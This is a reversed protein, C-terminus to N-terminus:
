LLFDKNKARLIQHHIEFPLIHIKFTDLMDKFFWESNISKYKSYLLLNNYLKGVFIAVDPKCVCFKDNCGLWWDQNPIVINYNTLSEVMEKWAIRHKFKLDPRSIIVYDYAQKHQEFLETIRKKSYLALVMNRILYRTLDQEFGSWTGLHTFYDEVQIQNSLIESQVDTIFYRPNLWKYQENDYEQIDEASWRNYYKGHIIYTHMFVDYEMGADLIPQFIHQQISEVTNELSRTLGFFLVAVKPKREEQM